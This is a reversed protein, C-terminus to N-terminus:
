GYCKSDALASVLLCLEPWNHIFYRYTYISYPESLEKTIVEMIAPMQTEDRYTEIVVPSGDDAPSKAVADAVKASVPASTTEPVKCSRVATGVVELNPLKTAAQATRLLENNKVSIDSPHQGNEKSPASATALTIGNLATTLKCM